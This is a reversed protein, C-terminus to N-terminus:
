VPLLEAARSGTWLPHERAGSTRQCRERRRSLNDLGAEIIALEDQVALVANAPNIGSVAQLEGLVKRRHELLDALARGDRVKVYGSVILELAKSM